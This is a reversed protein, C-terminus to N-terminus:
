KIRNVLLIVSKGIFYGLFGGCIVDTPYHHGLYIRSLCVLSALAYMWFWHAEKRSFLYAFAFAVTAHTSPFSFSRQIAGVVISTALMDPRPRMVINKFLVESLGYCLLIAIGLPVWFWHDKKEKRLFLIVSIIFWLIWAYGFGSFAQAIFDTWEQHPLHNIFFFVQQDLSFLFEM